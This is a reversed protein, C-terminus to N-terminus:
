SLDFGNLLNLSNCVLPPMKKETFFAAFDDASLYPFSQPPPPKLLNKFASVYNGVTQPM